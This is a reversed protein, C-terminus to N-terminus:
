RKGKGPQGNQQHHDEAVVDPRRVLRPAPGQGTEEQGGVGRESVGPRDVALLPETLPSYRATTMRATSASRPLKPALPLAPRLRRFHTARLRPPSRQPRWRGRAERSREAERQRERGRKAGKRRQT